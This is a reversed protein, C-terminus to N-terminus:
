LYTQMLCGEKAGGFERVIVILTLNVHVSMSNVVSYCPAKHSLLHAKSIDNPTIEASCKTKLVDIFKIVYATVRQLRKLSSFNQCHLIQGISKSQTKILLHHHTQKAEVLCEEPVGTSGLEMEM